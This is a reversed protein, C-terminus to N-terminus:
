QCSQKKGPFSPAFYFFPVLVNEVRAYQVYIYLTYTCIYTYPTYRGTNANAPGYVSVVLTGPRRRISEAASSDSHSLRCRVDTRPVICIGPRIVKVSVAMLLLTCAPIRQVLELYVLYIGVVRASISLEYNYMYVSAGDLRYRLLYTSM